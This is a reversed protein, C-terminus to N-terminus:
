AKDGRHFIRADIGADNLDDVLQELEDPKIRSGTYETGAKHARCQFLRDGYYHPGNVRKWYCGCPMKNM